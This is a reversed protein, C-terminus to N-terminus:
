FHGCRGKELRTENYKVFGSDDQMKCAFTFKLHRDFCDKGM